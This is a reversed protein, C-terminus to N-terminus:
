QICEVEPPQTDANDRLMIMASPQTFRVLWRV